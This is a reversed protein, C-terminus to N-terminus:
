SAHRKKEQVEPSTPVVEEAKFKRSLALFALVIVISGLALLATTLTLGFPTFGLFLGVLATVAFSLGVSFTFREIMDMSKKRPFLTEVLCYGPLFVVLIFGFAYRLYALPTGIEPFFLISVFALLTLGISVWFWLSKKSSLFDSFSKTPTTPEELAILGKQRMNKIEKIIDELNASTQEQVLQILDKVNRPQKTEIVKLIANELSPM